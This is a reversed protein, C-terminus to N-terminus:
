THLPCISALTAVTLGVMPAERLAVGAGTVPVAFLAMRNRALTQVAPTVGCASVTLPLLPYCM